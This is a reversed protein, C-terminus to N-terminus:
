ALERHRRDRRAARQDSVPCESRILMAAAAISGVILGIYAVGLYPTEQIQNPLDLLHILAIASLGLIGVGRLLVTTHVAPRALTGEEVVPRKLTREMVPGEFTRQM